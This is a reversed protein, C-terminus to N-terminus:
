DRKRWLSLEMPEALLDAAAAIWRTIHPAALHKDLLEQSTWNEYFFFLGPESPSEHMDYNICGPESRTPELLALLEQRVREENGPRARMRVAVTVQEGAM